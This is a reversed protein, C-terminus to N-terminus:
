VNKSKLVKLTTKCIDKMLKLPIYIQIEKDLFDTHLIITEVKKDKYKVGGLTAFLRQSISYSDGVKVGVFIEKDIVKKYENHKM